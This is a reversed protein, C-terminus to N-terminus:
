IGYKKRLEKSIDRADRTMGQHAHKISTDIRELLQTETQPQYSMHVEYPCDDKFMDVIHKQIMRSGINVRETIMKESLTIM